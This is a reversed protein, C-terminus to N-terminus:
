ITQWIIQIENLQEIKFVILSSYQQMQKIINVWLSSAAVRLATSKGCITGGLRFLKDRFSDPHRQGGSGYRALFEAQGAM